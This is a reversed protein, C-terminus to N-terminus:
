SHQGYEMELLIEIFHAAKRLDEAGNKAKHRSVYKIVAGEIFGLGNRHIYEVPQIAMGKYHGGGEQTDLASGVMQRAHSKQPHESAKYHAEEMRQEFLKRKAAELQDWAEQEECTEAPEPREEYDM